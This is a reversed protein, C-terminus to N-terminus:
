HISNLQTLSKAIERVMLKGGEKQTLAHALALSSHSHDKERRRDRDHGRDEEGAGEGVSNSESDVVHECRTQAHAGCLFGGGHCVCM